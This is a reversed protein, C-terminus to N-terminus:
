LVKTMIQERKRRCMVIQRQLGQNPEAHDPEFRGSKATRNPAANM